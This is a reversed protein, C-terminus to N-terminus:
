TAALRFAHYSASRPRALAYRRRTEARPVYVVESAPDRRIQATRAPQM